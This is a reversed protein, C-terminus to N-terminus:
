RGENSEEAVQVESRRRSSTARKAAAEKGLEECGTFM